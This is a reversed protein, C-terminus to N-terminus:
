NHSCCRVIIRYPYKCLMRIQNILLYIIAFRIQSFMDMKMLRPATLGPTRPEYGVPHSFPIFFAVYQRYIRRLLSLLEEALCMQDRRNPEAAVILFPFFGIVVKEVFFGRIGMSFATLHLRHQASVNENCQIVGVQVGNSQFLTYALDGM